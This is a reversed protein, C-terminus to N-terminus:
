SVSATGNWRRAIQVQLEFPRRHIWPFSPWRCKNWSKSIKKVSPTPLVCWWWGHWQDCYIAEDCCRGDHDTCTFPSMRLHTITTPSNNPAETPAHEHTRAYTCSDTGEFSDFITETTAEWAVIFFSVTRWEWSDTRRLVYILTSTVEEIPSKKKDFSSIPIDFRFLYPAWM